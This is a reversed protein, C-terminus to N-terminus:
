LKKTPLRGWHTLFYRFMSALHWSAYRVSSHSTRRADHIVSVSSNVLLKFGNAWLRTCIDVDEYYLFYREDFGGLLRFTDARFLMFMGAIWDPYLIEECALSEYECSVEGIFKNILSRFSPFNRASDEINGASNLILPAVLDAEFFSASKLLTPFPNADFIVDPNLPCFYSNKIFNFVYNHNHGFGAPKVNEILIIKESPPLYLKEPINKIVFIESVEPFQLLQSVVNSVMQGHGHSIVSISIM